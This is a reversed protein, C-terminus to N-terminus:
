KKKYGQAIKQQPSLGELDKPKQDGPRKTDIEKSKSDAFLGLKFAERLWKIKKAPTLDPIITRKEEPIDEILGDAVEKLAADSQKRKEIEQNLRALPIRDKDQADNKDHGAVDLVFVGDKELYLKQIEESLGDMSDVQMQLTM